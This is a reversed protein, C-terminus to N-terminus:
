SLKQKKGAIKKEESAEGKGFLPCEEIMQTVAPILQDMHGDEVLKDIWGAVTVKQLAQDSHLLGAWILSVAKRLQFDQFFAAGSALLNCGIDREVESLGYTGLKLEREKGGIHLKAM